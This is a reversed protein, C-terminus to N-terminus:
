RLKDVIRQAEDGVLTWAEAKAEARRKRHAKSGVPVGPRKHEDCRRQLAKFAESTQAAKCTFGYGCDACFSFLIALGTVSGDPRRYPETGVRWYPQGDIFHEPIPIGYPNHDMM